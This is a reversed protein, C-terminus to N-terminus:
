SSHLLLDRKSVEVIERYVQDILPILKGLAEENRAGGLDGVDPDRKELRALLQVIEDSVLHATARAKRFDADIRSLKVSVERGFEEDDEGRLEGATDAIERFLASTEALNDLLSIYLDRKLKWREQALWFEGSVKVKIEETARTNESLQRKIEDFNDEIAHQEGSKKLYAGLYAGLGASLLSCLVTLVTVLLTQSM